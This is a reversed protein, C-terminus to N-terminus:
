SEKRENPAGGSTPSAREGAIKKFVYRALFVSLLFAFFCPLMVPALAGTGLRDLVLALGAIALAGTLYLVLVFTGFAVFIAILIRVRDTARFLGAPRTGLLIRHKRSLWGGLLISPVELVNGAIVYWNPSPKANEDGSPFCVSVLLTFVILGIAHAIERRQAVVGTVFGGIICCVFGVLLNVLLWGISFPVDPKTPERYFILVAFIVGFYSIGGAALGIPIAAVSRLVKRNV